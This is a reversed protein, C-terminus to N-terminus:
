PLFYQIGPYTTKDTYDFVIGVSYKARTLAVYFKSRTTAAVDGKGKLWDVVTSPPYILVREFELGKSDGFNKVGYNDSVNTRINYRLQFPRFRKLYIDVDKKRVFFVGDHNTVISNGSLTRKLNPYLADSFSCISANCRWNTTLTHDDKEISISTDDFFYIIDGKRFKRAKSSNNTSYTGQRPDGVLLINSKSNFLLKLFELDYGALDQVEDIFINDYIRSIREIVANGSGTNCKIVFKALKDSFIQFDDTFYHKELNTEEIFQASQGPILFVSGIKKETFQGQFPRAGHELLFSFWTQVTVNQPICGNIKIFRKRIEEENALTFTTILTRRDTQELARNILYTTKGSGAAAVLLKNKGMNALQM